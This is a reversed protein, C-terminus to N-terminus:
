FSLFQQGLVSDVAEVSCDSLGMEGQEESEAPAAGVIDGLSVTSFLFYCLIMHHWAHEMNVYICQCHMSWDIWSIGTCNAMVMGPWSAWKDWSLIEKLWRGSNEVTLCITKMVLVDRCV